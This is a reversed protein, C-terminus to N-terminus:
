VTMKFVESSNINKMDTIGDSSYRNLGVTLQSHLSWVAAPAKTTLPERYRAKVAREASDPFSPKRLNVLYQNGVALQNAIRPHPRSDTWPASLRALHGM